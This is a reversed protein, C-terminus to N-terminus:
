ATKIVISKNPDFYTNLDYANHSKFEEHTLNFNSM